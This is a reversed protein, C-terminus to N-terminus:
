SLHSCKLQDNSDKISQLKVWFEPPTLNVMSALAGKMIPLMNWEDQLTDLKEEAVLLQKTLMLQCRGGVDVDALKNYFESNLPDIGSLEISQIVDDRIFMSIMDRYEDLKRGLALGEPIVKATFTVPVLEEEDSKDSESECLAFSHGICGLVFVSPIDKKLYSQFGSLVGIM